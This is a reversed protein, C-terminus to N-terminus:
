VVKKLAVPHVCHAAVAHGIQAMAVQRGFRKLDIGACSQIVSYMEPMGVGVDRM